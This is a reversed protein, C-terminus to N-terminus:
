PYIIIMNTPQSSSSCIIIIMAIYLTEKETNPPGSHQVYYQLLSIMAM